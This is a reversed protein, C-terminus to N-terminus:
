RNKDNFLTQKVRDANKNLKDRDKSVSDWEQLQKQVTEVTLHQQFKEIFLKTNHQEATFPLKMKESNNLENSGEPNLSETTNNNNNNNNNNNAIPLPPEYFLTDQQDNLVPTLFYTNPNQNVLDNQLEKILEYVKTKYQNLLHVNKFYELSNIDNSSSNNNDNNNDNNDQILSSSSSSTSTTPTTIKLLRFIEKNIQKLQTAKNEISLLNQTLMTTTPLPSTIPNIPSANSSITTNKTTNRPSILSPNQQPQQPQPQQPQQQVQIPSVINTTTPRQQQQQANQQQQQQIPIQQPQYQIPQQNNM